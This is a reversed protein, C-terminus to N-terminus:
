PQKVHCYQFDCIEDGRGLTHPRIFQIEPPFLEAMVDDNKCFSATLEPAGYTTLTKLYFCRTGNFAIKENSNEIHTFDWGEVPFKKMVQSFTLKFVRFPAPLIKLPALLLRSKGLTWIRFATDVETLAAQRDNDLEQLLIQYLALGPLINETAHKRLVPNEPLPREALLAAYRQRIQEALCRARTEGHTQALMPLNRRKILWVIGVSASLATLFLLTSKKNTM